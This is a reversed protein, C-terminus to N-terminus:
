EKKLKIKHKRTNQYRCSDRNGCTCIGKEESYYKCYTPGNYLHRYKRDLYFDEAENIEKEKLVCRTLLAPKLKAVLKFNGDKDVGYGLADSHLYLDESYAQINNENLSPDDTIVFHVACEYQQSIAYAKNNLEYYEDDTLTYTPDYVYQNTNEAFVPLAFLSSLLLVVLTSLLYKLTKKKM